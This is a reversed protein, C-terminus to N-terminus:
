LRISQDEFDLKKLQAQPYYHNLIERFSKGERALDKAGWQCLGSGHGNGLGTFTVSDAAETLSFLTSKMKSFGLIQRLEQGSVTVTKGDGGLAILGARRSPTRSIVTVNDIRNLSYKENILSLFENKSIKFSWKSRFACRRDKVGSFKFESVGWVHQPEETEGGCDSHYYAKMAKNKQMLIQGRTAAVAEHVKEIMPMSHMSYVQDLVDGELQYVERARVELQYYTYSRAAVAQAKLAEVPWSPSMEASIVGELYKELDLSLIIHAMKGNKSNLFIPSPYQHIGIKIKGSGSDLRLVKDTFRMIKKGSRVFWTRVGRIERATIELVESNMISAQKFTELAYGQVNIEQNEIQIPFSLSAMKVRVKPSTVKDLDAQAIEQSLFIGLALLLGLTTSKM